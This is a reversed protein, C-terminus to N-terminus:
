WAARARPGPIVAAFLLGLMPVFIDFAAGSARGQFLLEADDLDRVRMEAVAMRMEEGVPAAEGRRDRLRRRAEDDVGAIGAEGARAVALVQRRRRFQVRRQGARPADYRSVVVCAVMRGQAVARPPPQRRRALAEGGEARRETGVAEELVDAAPAQEADVPHQEAAVQRLFLLLEVPDLGRARAGSAPQEREEQV